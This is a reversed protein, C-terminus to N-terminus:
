VSGDWEGWKRRGNGLGRDKTEWGYRTWKNFEYLFDMGIQSIQPSYFKETILSDRMFIGAMIYDVM